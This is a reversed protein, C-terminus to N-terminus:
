FKSFGAFILIFIAIAIMILIHKAWEFLGEIGEKAGEKITQSNDKSAIGWIVFWGVLFIIILIPVMIAPNLSDFIDLLFGMFFIFGLMLLIAVPTPM